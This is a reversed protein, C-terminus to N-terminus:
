SYQAREKRRRGKVITELSTIYLGIKQIVQEQDCEETFDLIDLESLKWDFYNDIPM